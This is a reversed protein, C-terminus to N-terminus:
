TPLERAQEVTYLDQQISLLFDSLQLASTGTLCKQSTATTVLLEQEDWRFTVGDLTISNM